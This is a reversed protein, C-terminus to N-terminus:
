WYDVYVVMVFLPDALISYNQFYRRGRDMSQDYRKVTPTYSGDGATADDGVEIGIGLHFNEFKEVKERQEDDRWPIFVECAWGEDTPVSKSIVSQDAEPGLKFHPGFGLGDTIRGDSYFCLWGIYQLGSVGYRQRYSWYDWPRGEDELRKLERESPHVLDDTCWDLYLKVYDGGAEDKPELTPTKDKIEVYVYLGQIGRSIWAKFDGDASDLSGNEDVVYVDDHAQLLRGWEYIPEMVGDIEVCDMVYAADYEYPHVLNASYGCVTCEYWPFKDGVFAFSHPGEHIVPLTEEPTEVPTEVPTEPPTEIPSEAPTDTPIEEPTEAPSELPVENESAEPPVDAKGCATLAFAILMSIMFILFIRFTQKM